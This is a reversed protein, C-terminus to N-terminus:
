GPGPVQGSYDRVDRVLLFPRRLRPLLQCIRTALVLRLIAGLLMRRM